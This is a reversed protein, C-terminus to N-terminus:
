CVDLFAWPALCGFYILYRITPGSLLMLLLLWVNMAEEESFLKAWQTFFATAAGFREKVSFIIAMLYLLPLLGSMNTIPLALLFLFYFWHRM